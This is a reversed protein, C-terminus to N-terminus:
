SIKEIDGNDTYIMYQILLEGSGIKQADHEEKDVYEFVDVFLIGSLCKISTTTKTTFNVIWHVEDTEQKEFFENYYSLAYSEIDSITTAVRMLKWHETADNLMASPKAGEVLEAVDKDSKGIAEERQPIAQTTAETAGTTEPTQAPESPMALILLVFLVLIVLLVILIIKGIKM